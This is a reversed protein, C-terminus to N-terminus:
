RVSLSTQSRTTPLEREPTVPMKDGHPGFYYAGTPTAVDFKEAMGDDDGDDVIKVKLAPEEFHVGTNRRKTPKKRVPTHVRTEARGDPADILIEVRSPKVPTAIPIDSSSGPACELDEADDMMGESENREHTNSEDNQRM